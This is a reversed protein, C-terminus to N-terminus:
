RADFVQLMELGFVKEGMSCGGSQLNGTAGLVLRDCVQRDLLLLPLYNKM